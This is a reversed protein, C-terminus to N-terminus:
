RPESLDARAIRFGSHARPTSVQSMPSVDSGDLGSSQRRRMQPTPVDQRDRPM